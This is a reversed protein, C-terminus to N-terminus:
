EIEGDVTVAMTDIRPREARERIERANLGCQIALDISDMADSVAISCALCEQWDGFEAAHALADLHRRAKLYSEAWNM